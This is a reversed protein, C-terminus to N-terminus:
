LVCIASMSCSLGDSIGCILALSDYVAKLSKNSGCTVGPLRETGATNIVGKSGHMGSGRKNSVGLSVGQLYCSVGWWLALPPWRVRIVHMYLIANVYMFQQATYDKEKRESGYM